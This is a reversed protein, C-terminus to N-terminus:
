WSAGSLHTKLRFRAPVDADDGACLRACLRGIAPSFKFGHGSFGAAIVVRPDDPHTDVIFDGSPTCTYLCVKAAAWPGAAGPMHNKQFEALPELDEAHIERDVADPDLRADEGPATYVHRALKCGAIGEEDWPFGYFFGSACFAGWVPMARLRELEAAAPTSWGLVRRRVALLAGLRRPLLGSSSAGAALVVRDCPLLEGSDLLVRLAAGCSIERARAGYRVRVGLGVAEARLADLCAKVRVFGGSPTFCAIWGPPPRLPWRRAAEEADVIVREIGHEECASIAAQLEPDDPSGIELLGCRVLLRAGSLAELREWAAESERVLPVYGSGEHYAQRTVRTFGGHSGLEHVHEFRELVLVDAGERAAAAAIALGMTGGGIVIVRARATATAM